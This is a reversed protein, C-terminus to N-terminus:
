YGIALIYISQRIDSADWKRADLKLAYLDFGAATVNDTHLIIRSTQGTFNLFILPPQSFAVGNYSLGPSYLIANNNNTTSQWGNIGPAGLQVTYACIKLQQTSIDLQTFALPQNNVKSSSTNSLSQTIRSLDSLASDIQSTDFINSSPM